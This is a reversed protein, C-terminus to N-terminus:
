KEGLGDWSRGSVVPFLCWSSTYLVFGGRPIACHEGM